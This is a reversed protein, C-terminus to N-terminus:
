KPGFQSAFDNIADKSWGSGKNRLESLARGFSIKRGTRKNFHDQPGCFAYGHAIPIKNGDEIFCVTVATCHNINLMDDDVPYLKHTKIQKSNIATYYSTMFLQGWEDVLNSPKPRFHKYFVKFKKSSDM